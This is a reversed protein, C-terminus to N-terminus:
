RGIATTLTIQTPPISGTASCKQCCPASYTVLPNQLTSVSPQGGPFTWNWSTPQGASYDTFQVATGPCSIHKDAGFASSPAYSGAIYLDTEWM